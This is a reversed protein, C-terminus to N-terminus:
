SQNLWKAADKVSNQDFKFRFRLFPGQATYDAASFDKDTFGFFNYGLSVWANQMINYGISVGMSDDFQGANWSHLLSARLGIDWHRTFDYRGEMGILDTFGNYSQGDITEWVYKAGYQFSLQTVRNMKWNANLNNVIRRSDLEKGSGSEQDYLFDIRDLIIWRSKVPRYAAGFRLDGSTKELGTVSETSFIQARASLGLGDRVEGSIGSLLGWKDDTESTRYEGRNSWSWKKEKYNSGVSIATFDVSNGSANPVNTNFQYGTSNKITQSRDIGGDVSLQDTLQLTQKLGFLAFIRASEDRTEQAMSSNVQGGNWPTARMGVTTMEADYDKGKTFEQNAFITAGKNLKYDAGLTTRTPFDVNDNSWLSQDHGVRLTLREKLTTVSAGSTLQTSRNETGDSLTDTAQRLGLQLNYLKESYKLQAEILDRTADTALNYQRYGQGSATFRDTLRWAADAGVKRTGSESGAQQGLGFGTEQERVYLKADFLKTRHSLEALYANGETKSSGLETTTTAFEGKLRTASGFQMTTDFGYLNGTGSGQDEHIHTAGVKLQEDFLKLGARGGYNWAENGRDSTEYDVVIYIPNFNEDRSTIPEKFFITGAEYDISYDIFRTMSRSSIVVESRFRDRIEITIKESNMVINKKRLRYLGSTGDGPIEDKVFSQGAESAFLNFEVNKGQLESKIGTLRRSYRSLETVTLGTDYDGFMAYFQEREIRLYLKRASAADYNQQTADGYLTYYDEPNITQFMSNGVDGRGKHTDYAMTLLWKGQVTGKAFFAIRGNQYLDEDSGSGKLGEMNGSVTNYGVTGEGLGVLIWDRMKPQVYTEATVSKDGYRLEVRYPGSVTTPQFEVWGDADIKVIPPGSKDPLAKDPETPAKLTGSLLELETPANIAVGSKDLLQLRIRVPSKGDAINKGSELFRLSGVESTRVLIASESFRVNGFPDVGELKLTHRGPEGFDVGLYSITTLGKEKDTSRLGIRDEPVENDDLLLRPTLRSDFRILISNIRNVLSSKDAPYIIGSQKVAKKAPEAGKDVTVVNTAASNLKTQDTQATTIAANDRSVAPRLSAEDVQQPSLPAEQELAASGASAKRGVGPLPSLGGDTEVRKIDSSEKVVRSSSSEVLRVTQVRIEVRRNLARGAESRNSALPNSEGRGAVVLKEAPLRLAELLYNGVSKARAQSLARNDRFLHRNRPAIRVNDTYGTVFIREINLVKLLRALDDLTQKDMEGLEAILTDFQPRIVFEPLPIREERSTRLLVNEAVPTTVGKGTPSDFTLIASSVLEGPPTQPSFTANLILERRWEGEVDALRYSLTSGNIEPDPLPKGDLKSSQRSYIMGTPLTVTLQQNNLPVATGDLLVRYTCSKGAIASRLELQVEGKRQEVLQEPQNASGSAKEGTRSEEEQLKVESGSSKGQLSSEEDKPRSVPGVHFDVRWMTGGQIDVFQSFSRGAFRTNEDCALVEYGAPLSELDLQVVHVGPRIGEFHFMGQQDSEVYTGDELYIRVGKLGPKATEDLSCAGDMVRGMLITKDRFFQERVKVTAKAQNSTGGRSHTAQALNTAIGARAGAAVEVVYRIERAGLAPIDGIQFTLTRGDSSIGPDTLAQGDVRCSGSRYRFGLPLRDTVQVGPAVSLKGPNEVRVTYQLFDGHSVVEKNASKQVWLSTIIPDLPIDIRIAPGPNLQFTEGRSGPNVIAFPGGPLAQITETPITSPAAYGAPPTVVLRYSGPRIFPFRYGGPPFDYVKGSADTTTGGSTLTAPYASLGDDGLVTASQGTATDILTVTAGNVPTGSTTDILIGYPDVLSSCLSTDTSDVPDTYNSSILEGEKVSLKGDYTTISSGATASQIYGVFIGTNPGTETLRITESDRTSPTSVTVVVTEAVNRDLNQDMDTLRIFIPEGQHFVDAATLPLPQSLDIPTNSGVATPRSLPTFPADTRASARYGTTAVTIREATAVTPAYKLFEIQSRTRAVVTVNSSASVTSSNASDFRANNAILDGHGPVQAQARGSLILLTAALTAFPIAYLRGPRMMAAMPMCGYVGATQRARNAQRYVAAM